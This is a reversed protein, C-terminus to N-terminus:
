WDRAVEWAEPLPWRDNPWREFIDAPSFLDDTPTVSRVRDLRHMEAEGEDLCYAWLYTVDRTTARDGPQLDLPAVYHLSIVGDRRQYGLRIIVRDRIAAELDSAFSAM